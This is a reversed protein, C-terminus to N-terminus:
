LAKIWVSDKLSCYFLRVVKFTSFVSATRTKDVLSNKLFIKEAYEHIKIIYNKVLLGYVVRQFRGTNYGRSEVM